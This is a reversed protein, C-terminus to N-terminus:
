SLSGYLSKPFISTFIEIIEIYENIEGNKVFFSFGWREDYSAPDKFESWLRGESLTRM